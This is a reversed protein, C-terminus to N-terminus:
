IFTSVNEVQQGKSVDSKSVRDAKEVDVMDKRRAKKSKDRAQQVTGTVCNEVVVEEGGSTEMTEDDGFEAEFEDEGEEEEELEGEDEEDIEDDEDEGDDEVEEEGEDDEEEGEDNGLGRSKSYVLLAQSNDVGGVNGSM